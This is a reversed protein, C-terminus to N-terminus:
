QATDVRGDMAGMDEMNGMDKGIPRIGRRIEKVRGDAPDM